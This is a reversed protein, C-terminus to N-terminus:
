LLLVLLLFHLVLSFVLDVYYFYRILMGLPIEAKVTNLKKYTRFLFDKSLYQGLILVVENYLGCM